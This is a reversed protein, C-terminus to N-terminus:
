NQKKLFLSYLMDPYAAVLIDILTKRCKAIKPDIKLHGKEKGYIKHILAYMTVPEIKLRQVTEVATDFVNTEYDQMVEAKEPTKNGHKQFSRVYEAQLYVDKIQRRNIEGSPREVLLDVLYLKKTRNARPMNEILDIVNDMPANMKEYKGNISKSKSVQKMLNSKVSVKHPKTMIQQEKKLRLEDASIKGNKYDRLYRDILEKVTESILEKQRSLNEKKIPSNKRIRQLETKVDLPFTKKARDIEIQSLSSLMSISNYIDDLKEQTAGKSKEDWYYSNLLQGLNCIEGIRNDAIKDDIEALTHMDFAPYDPKGKIGNIPTPYARCEKAAQLIIENNTLLISDSDTDAGQLRAMVNNKYATMVVINNSTNMYKSITENYRNTFVCVNGSAIHPSRFGALEDGDNYLPTFIEYAELEQAENTIPQGIAHRLMDIPNSVMTGYDANVLIKGRKAKKKLSDVVEGKHDRYLSTYQVDPNINCLNALSVSSGHTDSTDDLYKKFTEFDDRMAMIKSVTEACLEKIQEDSLPLSNIMQYSLQNKVCEDESEFHSAKEFKVVGFNNDINKLWHRYIPQKQADTLNNNDEPNKGVTKYAFKLAKLSNPTTVIKIDETKHKKGFMDIVTEIGNDNFWMQLNTNFACSKFFKNRLLVCGKGEFEGVFKSVDLLSQGDFLEQTTHFDNDVEARIHQGSSDYKTVSATTSYEPALDSILLIEKPKISISGLSVSTTLSRYALLSTMDCRPDKTFDFGMFAWEDIQKKYREDIFMCHKGKVKGAGRQYFVYNRKEKNIYISFGSTYMKERMEYKSLVRTTDFRVKSYKGKKDLSYKKSDNLVGYGKDFVVDIIMDTRYVKIGNPKKDTRFESAFSKRLFQLELSNPMTGIYLVEDPSLKGEINKYNTLDKPTVIHDKNEKKEYAKFYQNAHFQMIYVTENKAKPRAM